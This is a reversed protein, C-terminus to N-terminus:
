GIFGLGYDTGAEFSEPKYSPNVPQNLLSQIHVNNGTYGTNQAVPQGNVNVTKKWYQGTGDHPGQSYLKGYQMGTGDHPGYGNGNNNAMAKMISAEDVPLGSPAGTATPGASVNGLGKTFRVKSANFDTNVPNLASSANKTPTSLWEFYAAKNASLGPKYMSAFSPTNKLTQAYPTKLWEVYM